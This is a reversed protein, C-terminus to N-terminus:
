SMYDVGEKKKKIMKEINLNLKELDMDFEDEWIDGSM